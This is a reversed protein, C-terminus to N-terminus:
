NSTVMCQEEKQRPARWDNCIAFESARPEAATQLRRAKAGTPRGCCVITPCLAKRVEFRPRSPQLRGAPGLATRTAGPRLERRARSSRTTRALRRSAKGQKASMRLGLSRHHIVTSRNLMSSQSPQSGGHHPADYVLSSPKSQCAGYDIDGVSQSERVGADIRAIFGASVGISRWTWHILNVLRKARPLLPRRDLIKSMRRGEHERKTELFGSSDASSRSKSKIDDSM